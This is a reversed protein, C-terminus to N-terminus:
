IQWVVQKEVVFSDASAGSIRRGMQVQKWGSRGFVPQKSGPEDGNDSAMHQGKEDESATTSHSRRLVEAKLCSGPSIPLPPLAKWSGQPVVGGSRSRHPYHFKVWRPMSKFSRSESEESAMIIQSNRHNWPRQLAQPPVQPPMPPFGAPPPPLPPPSQPDIVCGSQSQLFSPCFDSRHTSAASFRHFLSTFSRRSPTRAGTAQPPVPNLGLPNFRLFRTLSKRLSRRAKETLTPRAFTARYDWAPSGSSGVEATLLSDSM